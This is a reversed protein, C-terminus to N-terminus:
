HPKPRARRIAPAEVGTVRASFLILGNEDTVTLEFDATDWFTLASDSLLAGAYIIAQRKAEEISPFDFGEDDQIDRETPHNSHFFYAAM